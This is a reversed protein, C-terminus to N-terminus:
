KREYLRSDRSYRELALEILKTILDKYTIGSAEWLKSYMSINTFGPMTNIENLIVRNTRKQLFFDVRALGSCGLAKFAKVSYEQILEVTDPEIEAPIVEVSKGDIYKANYDYFENSPIIEGVASAMPTDNGLVACELERGEIFEEVLIKKDYLAALMLAEKLEEPKKVKTIGVSSGANAPKVFCPWGFRENILDTLSNISDEIEDRMVKIFDALPISENKLVLKSFEKDMSAASALINCGVYPIDLLQLLGQVSGDEGNPGHLVPFVVDTKKTRGRIDSRVLGAGPMSILELYDDPSINDTEIGSLKEVAYAEWEGTEILKIDGDFKLWRGDKTIGITQIEFREKDINELVCKASSRSVEHESSQGGFLITVHIKCGM